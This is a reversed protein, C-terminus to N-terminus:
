SVWEAALQEPTGDYTNLDVGAGCSIGPVNHPQPGIGDGTFQWLSARPWPLPNGYADILKAKPGYECLWFPHQGLFTRTPAGAHVILEKIRNGSYIWAKRGIKQDLLGLFEVAQSLSMESVKNDEFDLAMLTQADPAAARMFHDVQAAVSAGTNFHYAGWLLGAGKATVRRGAYAHDDVDVGQTAKHIIGRIGSAYTAKLDSVTDGHYIDVVMPRINM